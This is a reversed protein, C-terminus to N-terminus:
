QYKIIFYPDETEDSNDLLINIIVNNRKYIRWINETVIVYEKNFLEIWYKLSVSTRPQILINNCLENSGFMYITITHADAITLTPKGNTYSLGYEKDTMSHTYSEDFPKYGEKELESKLILLSKGLENQSYLNSCSIVAFFLIIIKM